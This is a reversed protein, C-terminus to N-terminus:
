WDSRLSALISAVTIPGDIARVNDNVSDGITVIPPEVRGDERVQGMGVTALLSNCICKRGITQELKGGKKLYDDIPESACRYVVTTKEKGSRGIFTVEVAERLYGLDCIRDREDYVDPESMTSEIRAVKFPFGTPSALPDTYVDIDNGSRIQSIVRQKLHDAMGSEKALAFISGGQVGRAGLAKARALGERSGYGGALWYPVDLSRMTDMNAHDRATYIPQGTEDLAIAKNGPTRPPANHGGAIPEEIIFGDPPVSHKKFRQALIHSTIIMLFRPVRLETDTKYRDPDFKLFYDQTANAVSIPFDIPKQEAMDQMYKPIDAPIGAGMAVIDVGAQMAGYITHMNPEQVKTLLNMGIVGRGNALRKALLVEAFAGVVALDATIPSYRYNFLPTRDYPNGERGGEKYYKDYINEAIEPRPYQELAWHMNGTPDGDNLERVLVSGIATGSILGTAEHSAVAGALKYSSTRVGMGGQIIELAPSDPFTDALQKM